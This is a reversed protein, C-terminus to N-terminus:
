VCKQIKSKKKTNSQRVTKGKEFASRSKDKSKTTRSGFPKAKEWPPPTDSKVGFAVSFRLRDPANSGPEPARGGRLVRNSEAGKNSAQGRRTTKQQFLTHSLQPREMKTMCR